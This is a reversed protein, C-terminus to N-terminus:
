YTLFKNFQSCIGSTKKIPYKKATSMHEAKIVKLPDLHQTKKMAKPYWLMSNILETFFVGANSDKGIHFLSSSVSAIDAYSFRIPFQEIQLQSNM